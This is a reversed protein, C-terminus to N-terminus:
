SRSGNGSPGARLPLVGHKQMKRRLRHREIGLLRAAASQNYDTRRLTCLIHERELDALTPWPSTGQLDPDCGRSPWGNPCPRALAPVVDLRPVPQQPKEDPGDGPIMKPEIWPGDTFLVARELVNQLERVNGPWAHRQMREMAAPSIQKPAMGSQIALQNLIYCSLVPLDEPRDKLPRTKLSVVNLRYFLDERFRARAVERKLDRNTAAIVRVDVPIPRHSGVAVVTREQLTRLLKAQLEFDLEGIEDLFVTGGDAARFCGSADSTAGTFSGKRHGFMVSAFLSGAVAACDVPVFPKDARAGHAHISQAILEKGTGSPGTILVNSPHPAVRLIQSRIRRAWASVGVICPATQAVAGPCAMNV